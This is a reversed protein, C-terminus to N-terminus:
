RNKPRVVRPPLDQKVREYAWDKAPLPPMAFERVQLPTKSDLRPFDWTVENGNPQEFWLQRPLYTSNSLVLRAKIFDKKDAATRPKILIYHYWKDNAPAQLMVLEYRRKAEAAKMGFLFTLFNDDALQGQKAKPMEYIRIKKEQPVYMYLFNGTCVYKEYVQPRSKQVMWLVARNPKMYKATGEFVETTQFAKNFTTRTLKASLKEVGQMAQEWRMLIGDLPNRADLAPQKISQQAHLVPSTLLIATLTLWYKRM